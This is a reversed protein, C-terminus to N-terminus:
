IVLIQDIIEDDNIPLRVHGPTDFVIEITVAGGLGSRDATRVVGGEDSNASM